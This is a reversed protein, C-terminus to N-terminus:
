WLPAEYSARAVPSEAITVRVSHLDRGNRGLKGERAVAAMGDFVHKALVETTTNVGAFQPLEDVNRYNLPRLVERLVDHAAAIDVVIGHQDLKEALFAVRIVLTAGHLEQAPGFINGRFSHAIMIQETVEVAYLPAGKGERVILRVGSDSYQSGSLPDTPM